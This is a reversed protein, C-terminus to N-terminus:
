LYEGYDKLQEIVKTVHHSFTRHFSRRLLLPVGPSKLDMVQWNWATTRLGLPQLVFDPAFSKNKTLPLYPRSWLSDFNGGLIFEPHKELFAQMHVENVGKTDTQAKREESASRM